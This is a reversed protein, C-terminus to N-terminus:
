SLVNKDLPYGYCFLSLESNERRESEGGVGM